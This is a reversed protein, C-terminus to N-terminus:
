IRGSTSRKSRGDNAARCPLTPPVAGRSLPLAPAAGPRRLLSHILHRYDIHYASQGCLRPTADLPSGKIGRCVSHPRTRWNHRAKLKSPPKGVRRYKRATLESM